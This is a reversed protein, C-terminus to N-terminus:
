KKKGRSKGVDLAGKELLLKYIHESASIVVGPEDISWFDDVKNGDPDFCEANGDYSSYISYGNSWAWKKLSYALDPLSMHCTVPVSSSSSVIDYSFSNKGTLCNAGTYDPGPLADELLGPTVVFNIKSM